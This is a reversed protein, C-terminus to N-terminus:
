PGVQTKSSLGNSWNMDVESSSNVPLLMNLGGNAASEENVGGSVSAEHSCTRSVHM